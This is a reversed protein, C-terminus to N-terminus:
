VLSNLMWYVGDSSLLRTAQLTVTETQESGPRSITKEVQWDLQWALESGLAVLLAGIAFLTAPDPLANGAREIRDLWGGRSAGNM